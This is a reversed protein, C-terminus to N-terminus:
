ASAEAEFEGVAVGLEVQTGMALHHQLNATLETECPGNLEVCLEALTGADAVVTLRVVRSADFLALM